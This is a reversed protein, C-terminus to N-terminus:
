STISVIIAVASSVSYLPPYPGLPSSQSVLLDGQTTIMGNCPISELAFYEQYLEDLVQIAPKTDWYLNHGRHTADEPGVMYFSDVERITGLSQKALGFLLKHRGGFM